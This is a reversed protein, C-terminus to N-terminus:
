RAATFDAAVLATFAAVSAATFAAVAMFVVVEAMVAVSIVAVSM